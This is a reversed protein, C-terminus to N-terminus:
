RPTRQGYNDCQFETCTSEFAETTDDSNFALQPICSASQPVFTLLPLQQFAPQFRGETSFLHVQDIFIRGLRQASCLSILRKHFQPNVAAESTVFVLREDRVNDPEDTCSIGHSKARRMLDCQLSVTPVIVINTVSRHKEAYLFFVLLSKGCGTPLVAFIDCKTHITYDM